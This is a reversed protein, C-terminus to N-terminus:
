HFFNYILLAKKKGIGPTNLLDEPNACAVDKITSFSDLLSGALSEGISPIASLLIKRSDKIPLDKRVRKHHWRPKPHADNKHKLERKLTTELFATFAQDNEAFIIPTDYVFIIEQFAGSISNWFKTPSSGDTFM